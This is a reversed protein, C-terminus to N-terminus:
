LKVEYECCDHGTANCKIEKVSVKRGMINSLTGELECIM